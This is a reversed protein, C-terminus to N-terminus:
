LPAGIARLLFDRTPLADLIATLAIVQEKADSNTIQPTVGLIDVATLSALTHPASDNALDADDPMGNLIYGAVTLEHSAAALLTLLTHNITGLGTRAVVLLPLALQRALDAVLHGGALPTMLGGAGEVIMYSHRAALTAYAESLLSPVIRVQEKSAAIAPAVPHQLRYPTILNCDDEVGAAWALLAGDAGLQTVDAVGSEIPKMVGVKVGRNHLLRALAAAVMTKGVGTDTGTVFIGPTM